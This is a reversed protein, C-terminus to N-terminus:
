YYVTDDPGNYDVWRKKWYARWIVNGNDDFAQRYWIMSFGESHLYEMQKVYEGDVVDDAGTWTGTCNCADNVVVRRMGQDVDTWEDHNQIGSFDAHATAQISLPAALALSLAAAALLRNM